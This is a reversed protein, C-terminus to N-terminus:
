FKLKKLHRERLKIRKSRKRPLNLKKLNEIINELPSGHKLTLSYQYLTEGKFNRIKQLSKREFKLFVNLLRRQRDRVFYFIWEPCNELVWFRLRPNSKLWGLILKIKRKQGFNHKIELYGKEKKNKIGIEIIKQIEDSFSNFIYFDHKTLKILEIIFADKPVDRFFGDSIFEKKFLDSDNNYFWVFLDIANLYHHTLWGSGLYRPGKSGIENQDEDSPIMYGRDYNRAMAYNIKDYLDYGSAYAFQGSCVYRIIIQNFDYVINWEGRCFLNSNGFTDEVVLECVSEYENWGLHELEARASPSRAILAKMRDEPTIPLHAQSESIMERYRSLPLRPLNLTLVNPIVINKYYSALNDFKVWNKKRWDISKIIQYWHRCVLSCQSQDYRDLFIFITYLADENLKNM